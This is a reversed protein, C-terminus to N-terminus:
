VQLKYQGSQGGDSNSSPRDNNIVLVSVVLGISGFVTDLKILVLNFLPWFHDILFSNYSDNSNKLLLKLLFRVLLQIITLCVRQGSRGSYFSAFVHEWIELSGALLM